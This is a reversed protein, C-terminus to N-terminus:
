LASVCCVSCGLAQNLVAFQFGSTVVTSNRQSAVYISIGQHLFVSQLNHSMEYQAGVALVRVYGLVAWKWTPEPGSLTDHTLVAV